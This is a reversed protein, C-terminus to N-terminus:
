EFIFIAISSTGRTAFVTNFILFGPITPLLIKRCNTRWFIANRTFGIVDPSYPRPITIFINSGFYALISYLPWGLAKLKVVWLFHCIPDNPLSNELAGRRNFSM